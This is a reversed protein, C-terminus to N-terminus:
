TLGQAPVKSPYGVLQCDKTRMLELFAQLRAEDRFEIGWVLGNNAM